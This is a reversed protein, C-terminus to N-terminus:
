FDAGRPQAAAERAGAAVSEYWAHKEEHTRVTEVAADAVRAVDAFAQAETYIIILRDYPGAADFRAAVAREYLEVAEDVREVQELNQGRLYLSVLDM